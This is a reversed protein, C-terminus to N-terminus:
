VRKLKTANLVHRGENPIEMKREVQPNLYAMIASKNEDLWSLIDESMDSDALVKKMKTLAEMKWAEQATECFHGDSTLYGKVEKVMRKDKEKQDKAVPSLASALVCM